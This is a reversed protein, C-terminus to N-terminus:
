TSSPDSSSHHYENIPPKEVLLMQLKPYFLKSKFNMNYVNITQNVQEKDQSDRFIKQPLKTYEESRTGCKETSKEGDESGSGLKFISKVTM